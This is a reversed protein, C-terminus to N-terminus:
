RYESLLLHKRTERRFEGSSDSLLGQRDMKEESLWIELGAMELIERAMGSAHM